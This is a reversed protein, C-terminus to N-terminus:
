RWPRRHVRAQRDILLDSLENLRSRLAFYNDRDTWSGPKVAGAYEYEDQGKLVRVSGDRERIIVFQIGQEPAREFKARTHGRVISGDSYVIEFARRFM